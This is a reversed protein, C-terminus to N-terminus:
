TRRKGMRQVLATDSRPIAAIYDGPHGLRGRQEVPRLHLRLFGGVWTLSRPHPGLPRIIM